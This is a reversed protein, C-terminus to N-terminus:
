DYMNLKLDSVYFHIFVSIKYELHDVPVSEVPVTLCPSIAFKIVMFVYNIM